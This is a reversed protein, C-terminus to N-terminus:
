QSDLLPVLGMVYRTTNRPLKISDSTNVHHTRFTALALPHIWSGFDSLCMWVIGTGLSPPTAM